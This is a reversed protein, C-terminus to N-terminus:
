RWRSPKICISQGRQNKSNPRNKLQQPNFQPLSTTLDRGLPRAEQWAVDVRHSSCGILLILLVIGLPMITKQRM